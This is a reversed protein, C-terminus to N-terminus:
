IMMLVFIGYTGEADEHVGSLVMNYLLQHRSRCFSFLFSSVKESSGMCFSRGIRVRKFFLLSKGSGASCSTLLDLSARTDLESESRAPRSYEFIPKMKQYNSIAQTMGGRLM